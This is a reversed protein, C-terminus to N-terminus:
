KRRENSVIAVINTAVSVAAVIRDTPRIVVFLFVVFFLTQWVNPKRQRPNIAM